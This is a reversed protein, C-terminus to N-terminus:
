RGNAAPWVLKSGLAVLFLGMPILWLPAGGTKPLTADRVPAPQDDDTPPTTPPTTPEDCPDRLAEDIKTPILNAVPEFDPNDAIEQYVARIKLDEPLAADLQCILDHIADYLQQPLQDFVPDFPSGDEPPPEGGPPAPCPSLGLAERLPEFPNSQAPLAAPRDAAPASTRTDSKEGTSDGAGSTLTEGLDQVTEEVQGVYQEVDTPTSGPPSGLDEGAAFAAASPGVILAGAAMGALLTRAVLKM